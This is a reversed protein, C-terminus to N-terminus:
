GLTVSTGNMEPELSGPLGLRGLAYRAPLSGRPRPMEGVDDAVRSQASPHRASGCSKMNQVTGLIMYDFVAGWAPEILCQHHRLLLWRTQCRRASSDMPAPLPSSSQTAPFAQACRSSALVAHLDRQDALVDDRRRMGKPRLPVRLVAAVLCQSDATSISQTSESSILRSWRSLSGPSTIQVMRGPPRARPPFAHDAAVLARVCPIRSRCRGRCAPDRNHAVCARARSRICSWRTQGSEVWGTMEVQHLCCPMEM